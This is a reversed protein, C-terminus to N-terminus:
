MDECEHPCTSQALLAQRISEPTAEGETQRARHARIQESTNM